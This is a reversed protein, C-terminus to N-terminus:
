AVGATVPERPSGGPGPSGGGGDPGGAGGGGGDPGPGGDGAAGGGDEGSRARAEEQGTHRLLIPWGVVGVAAFLFWQVAYSLHPGEDTTPTPLLQPLSAAQPPDQAELQVFVPLLELRYQQQVRGVDVRALEELTGAEPDTPGIGQREQTPFALGTVTVRGPPPAVARRAVDLEAAFPAFGRTVLVARGDDLVLPTVVHWGSVGGLSRPRVFVEGETDYTGTLSVRRYRLEEVDDLGAGDPVVEHVPAAPVQARARIAANRERRDDLRDLQWLGLSVFAAVLAVVLVHGVVWKPRLWFPRRRRATRTVDAM